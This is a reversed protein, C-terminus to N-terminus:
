AEPDKKHPLRITFKTGQGKTSEVQIDGEHLTVLQKVISLGLGFQGSGRSFDTKYFRRWILDIEEVDIGSGTDEVEIVMHAPEKFARLFIQGHDTFQISNKVINTLIQILRDMDGYIVTGAEPEIVIHDGKEEAQLYLHEQIIELLEESEVEEKTLTVQNSRIKEYDLNENVLRILRKTEDSVLRIGKERQDEEFMNNRLGEIVGAITTLPTRMEHSVDAMFQRRRNELREIEENSQQLKNAMKNFDRSLDGIEDFNTEPLNVDYRGNTIMSTAKQMRQIRSVHLKSLLLSLLLAVALAILIATVLTKNLESVMERTGSVPSALLVGGVLEGDSVYPMAVFTMTIEFREVDRNVVLTEGQEIINWEEETLDIPPFAESFPYLVRSQQDFVIFDIGQAKLLSVYTQLDTGPRPRELERLIQEGYRELEEAKEEYAFEEVYQVFLISLILLAILLISLHSGILQYFYKIRPKKM